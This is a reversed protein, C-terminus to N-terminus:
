FQTGMWFTFIRKEDGRKANLPQALSFTLPAGLPSNWTLTVGVSYRIDGALRSKRTSRPLNKGLRRRHRTDYVQGADLFLATRVSKADPKIPNPFILSATACALLNGGLARGRSDKPGLSNEEYGRVTRIGGAVFNRYFPLQPTRGYGDAFGLNAIMNIIWRESDSIPYYWNANYTLKYYEQKAGPVVLSARATQTLGRRPFLRQDLSDYGWGLSLVVEQFNHGYKRVFALVENSAVRPDVKLHTNDYGVSTSIAEYKSMPFIWRFEGGVTDAIYDTVFTTKSYHAKSYYGSFGMGIGDVTFYPDQYGFAYNTSAKSKDFTFDVMKGTGFFNEQSISFNFMLKETASYALGAAIQGMKAEEIKYVLDV